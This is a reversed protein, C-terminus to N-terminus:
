KKKEGLYAEIVKEDSQVVKPSGEAIKKGYDLVIVKECIGMIVNMDHEIIFISIGFQEKIFRILQMLEKKESPNMGAAPEDLLLLKPSTALARTIEVKRQLGYPLSVAISNKVDKLGFIELLKNIKEEIESTEKKIQPFGFMSSFYKNKLNKNFSIKLNEEVTLSAFLRINQFTRSIGRAAIEYPKEGTIDIDDFFIKGSTPKYVGTIINFVTTKGAGNPGIMGSLQGSELAADLGDICVLGGFNM